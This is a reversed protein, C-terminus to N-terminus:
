AARAFKQSLFQRSAAGSASSKASSSCSSPQAAVEGAPAKLRPADAHPRRSMTPLTQSHVEDAYSARRVSIRPPLQSFMGLRSRLETRLWCGAFVALFGLALAVVAVRIVTSLVITFTM